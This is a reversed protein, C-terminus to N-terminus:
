NHFSLSKIGWILINETTHRKGPISYIIGYSNLINTLFLFGMWLPKFLHLATKTVYCSAEPSCSSTSTSCSLSTVSVSNEQHSGNISRCELLFFCAFPDSSPLLSGLIACSAKEEIDDKLVRMHVEELQFM